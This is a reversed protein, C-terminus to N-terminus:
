RRKYNFCILKLPKIVKLGNWCKCHECAFIKGKIYYYKCKKCKHQKVKNIISKKNYKKHFSNIIKNIKKRENKM